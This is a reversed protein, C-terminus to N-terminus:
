QRLRPPLRRRLLHQRGRPARAPDRRHPPPPHQPPPEPPPRPPPPPVARAAGGAPITPRVLEFEVRPLGPSPVRREWGSPDQPAHQEDRRLVVVRAAREEGLLRAISTDLG